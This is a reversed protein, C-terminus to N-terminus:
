AGGGHPRATPEEAPVEETNAGWAPVFANATAKMGRDHESPGAAPWRSPPSALRGARAAPAMMSGRRPPNTSQYDGVSDGDGSGGTSGGDAAAETPTRRHFVGLGEAAGEGEYKGEDVPAGWAPVFRTLGGADKEAQGSSAQDLVSWRRRGGGGGGGHEAPAAAAVAPVAGLSRASLGASFVATAPMIHYTRAARAVGGGGGAASAAPAPFLGSKWPPVKGPSGVPTLDGSEEEITTDPDRLMRSTSFRRQANFATVSRSAAQASLVDRYSTGSSVPPIASAEFASDRRHMETVVPPLASLQAVFASARRPKSSDQAALGNRSAAARAEDYSAARGVSALGDRRWDPAPSSTVYGTAAPPPNPDWAKRKQTARGADQQGSPASPLAFLRSTKNVPRSRAPAPGVTPARGRSDVDMAASGAGGRDRRDSGGAGSSGGGGNGGGGGGGGSGSGEDQGSGGFIGVIDHGSRAFGTAGTSSRPEQVPLSTPSSALDTGDMGFSDGLSDERHRKLRSRPIEKLLSQLSPLRPVPMSARRRPAEQADCIPPKGVSSASTAHLTARRRPSAAPPSFTPESVGVQGHGDRPFAIVGPNIDNINRLVGAQGVSETAQHAPSQGVGTTSSPCSDEAATSALQLLSAGALGVSKHKDCFKSRVRNAEHGTPHSCGPYACKHSIVDVMEPSRHSGCFCPRQGPLGFCPRKSCGPRQCRRNCVDVQGEQKHASCFQSKQGEYGYLPRRRCNPEECRRSVVDVQGELKHAACFCARKGEFGYSPQRKCGPAACRRSRVDIMAASKHHSCFKAKEGENGYLPWKACGVAECRRSSVDVMGARSKSHQACYMPKGGPAGFFPRRRCPEEVCWRQSDPDGRDIENDGDGHSPQPPGAMGCARRRTSSLPKEPKAHAHPRE